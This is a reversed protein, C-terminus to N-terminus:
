FKDRLGPTDRAHTIRFGYYFYQAKRFLFNEWTVLQPCNPKILHFWCVAFKQRADIITQKTSGNGFMTLM